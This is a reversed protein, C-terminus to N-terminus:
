KYGKIKELTEKCIEDTEEDSWSMITTMVFGAKVDELTIDELKKAKFDDTIFNIKNCKECRFTYADSTPAYWIEKNLFNCYVCNLNLDYRDGM